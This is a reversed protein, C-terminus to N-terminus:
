NPKLVKELELVFKKYHMEEQSKIERFHDGLGKEGRADAEAALRTYLKVDDNYEGEVANSLNQEDTGVLGSLAAWRLFHGYEMNSTVEMLDALEKKGAKRAHESFLRYKASSFAENEMASKLAQRAEPSYPQEAIASGAGFAAAVAIGATLVLAKVQRM